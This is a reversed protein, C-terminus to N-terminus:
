CHPTKELPVTSHSPYQSHAQYIELPNCVQMAPLNFTGFPWFVFQSGHYSALVKFLCIASRPKRKRQPRGPVAPIQWVSGQPQEFSELLPYAMEMVLRFKYSWLCFKGSALPETSFEIYLNPSTSMNTVWALMFPNLRVEKDPTRRPKIGGWNFVFFCFCTLYPFM